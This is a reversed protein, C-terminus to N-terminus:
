EDRRIIPLRLKPKLSAEVAGIDIRDIVRPFGPGRQDFDPPDSFAPDGADIVPSLTEPLHTHTPGGNDQLSGLQPDLLAGSSGVLNGDSGDVLSSGDGNGVFNYRSNPHMLATNLDRTSGNQANQAVISNVLRTTGTSNVVGFGGNNIITSHTITIEGTSSQVGNQGSGSITSSGITIDLPANVGNQGGSVTSFELNIRSLSSSIGHGSGGSVTSSLVTASGTAAIGTGNGAVTSDSVTVQGTDTKIGDQNGIIRSDTISADGQHVVVGDTVGGSIQSDSITVNGSESYIGRGGSVTSATVQILGIADVGIQTGTIVSHNLEVNGTDTDIGAEDGRIQSYSVSANGSDADVGDDTISTITSYAVTVDGTASYAGNNDGTITSSLVTVHTFSDVGNGNSGTIVSNTVQLEGFSIVGYDFGLVTSGAITTGQPGFAAVGDCGLGTVTSNSIVAGGDSTYVGCGGGTVISNTVTLSDTTYLGDSIVNSITLGDLGIGTGTGSGELANFSGGGDITLNAAGPGNLQITETILPLDSLLTITGSIASLDIVDNGAGAACDGFATDTNAAIIAERLTCGTGDDTASDVVITGALVPATVALLLASGILIASIVRL